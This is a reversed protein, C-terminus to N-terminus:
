GADRFLICVPSGTRAVEGAPALEGTAEAIGFGVISDSDENAVYLRRGAPDPAFFRPTRGGSPVWQRPALRGTGEDVAFVVISDHGRNSAYVSRGDKLNVVLGSGAYHEASEPLSADYLAQDASFLEDYVAEIRDALADDVEDEAVQVLSEPDGDVQIWGINLESLYHQFRTRPEDHFFVYELM